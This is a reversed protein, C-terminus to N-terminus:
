SSTTSDTAAVTHLSTALESWLRRQAAWHPTLAVPQLLRLPLRDRGRDIPPLFLIAEQVDPALLTLNMIQSIRARSVHGLRALEAFDAVVHDRLLDQFRIALALLRTIRHLRGGAPREEVKKPAAIRKAGGRGCTQFRVECEFKLPNNM